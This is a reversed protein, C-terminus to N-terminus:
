ESDEGAARLVFRIHRQAPIRFVDPKLWQNRVLTYRIWLGRRVPQPEDQLLMRVLRQPVQAIGHVIRLAGPRCANREDSHRSRLIRPMLLNCPNKPFAACECDELVHILQFCQHVRSTAAFSLLGPRVCCSLFASRPYAACQPFPFTGPRSRSGPGPDCAPATRWVHRM